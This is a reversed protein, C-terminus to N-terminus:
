GQLALLKERTRNKGYETKPAEARLAELEKTMEESPAKSVIKRYRERAALEAQWRKSKELREMIAYLAEEIPTDEYIIAMRELDDYLRFARLTEWTKSKPGHAEVLAASAKFWAQVAKFVRGRLLKYSIKSPWAKTADLREIEKAALAWDGFAGADALKQLEADTKAPKLTSPIPLAARLLNQLVARHEPKGSTHGYGQMEIYRTEQIVQQMMVAHRRCTTRRNKLLPHKVRDPTEYEGAMVVYPVQAYPNRGISATTSAVVLALPKFAGKTRAFEVMGSRVGMGGSSFGFVLVRQTDIPVKGDKLLENYGDMTYMNPSLVIVPHEKTSLRSMSRCLGKGSGGDKGGHYVIVLPYRKKKDLKEPVFLHYEAVEGPEHKKFYGTKPLEGKGAHLVSFEGKGPKEKAAPDEVMSTNFLDANESVAPAKKKGAKKNRAASANPAASWVGALIWLFTLAALVARRRQHRM